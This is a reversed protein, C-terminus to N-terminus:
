KYPTLRDYVQICKLGILAWMQFECDHRLKLDAVFPERDTGLDLNERKSLDNEAVSGYNHFESGFSIVVADERSFKLCNALVLKM